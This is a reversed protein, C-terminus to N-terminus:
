EPTKVPRSARLRLEEIEASTHVGASFYSLDANMEGGISTPSKLQFFNFYFFGEKM